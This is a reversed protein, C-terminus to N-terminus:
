LKNQNNKDNLASSEFSSRLLELAEDSYGLEQAIAENHEGIEPLDRYLGPRVGNFEVPLTPVKALVGNSLTVEVTAGPHNVHPDDFLQDPRMIPAFPLDFNELIKSAQSLNLTKFMKHLRPMFEERRAVRQTNTSLEKNKLLDELDFAKCFEGWQKDSVVGVFIQEYDATQFVDYIAWAAKRDPM